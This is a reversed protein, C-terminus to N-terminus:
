APPLHALETVLRLRRALEEDSLDEFAVEPVVIDHKRAIIRAFAMYAFQNWQREGQPLATPVQESRTQNNPM